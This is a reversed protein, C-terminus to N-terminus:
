KKADQCQRKEQLILSVKKVEEWFINETALHFSFLVSLHLWLSCTALKKKLIPAESFPRQISDIDYGLKTQFGVFHCSKVLLQSEQTLDWKSIRTVCNQHDQLSGPSWWDQHDQLPTALPPTSSNPFPLLISTYAEMAAKDQRRCMAFRVFTRFCYTLLFYFVLFQLM